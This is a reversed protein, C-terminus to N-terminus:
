LRRLKKGCNFCYNYFQAHSSHDYECQSEGDSHMAHNYQMGKKYAELIASAVSDALRQGIHLDVIDNVHRTAQAAWKYALAEDM